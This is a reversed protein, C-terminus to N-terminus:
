KLRIAKRRFGPLAAILSCKLLYLHVNQLMDLVEHFVRPHIGLAAPSRM